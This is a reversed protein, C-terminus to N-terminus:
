NPQTGTGELVRGSREGMARGGRGIYTYVRRDDHEPESPEMSCKPCSGEWITM